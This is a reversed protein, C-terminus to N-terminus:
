RGSRAAVTKVTAALIQLDRALSIQSGYEVDMAIRAAYSTDNRGNVQWLGTLGPRLAQYKAWAPGYLLGEARTVPRPGVLSMEGKLINWIQPLEDLSTQRLIQGLPTVRPDKALKFTAAWERAAQPNQRLYAQLRTEADPIMSRLKWCTFAKGNRGIRQHGFFPSGGQVAILLVCLVAIVLLLAPLALLVLGIDLARKGFHHYFRQPLLRTERPWAAYHKRPFAAFGDDTKTM